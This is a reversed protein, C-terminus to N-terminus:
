PGIYGMELSPAPVSSYISSVALHDLFLSLSPGLNAVAAETSRPKRPEVSITLLSIGQEELAKRNRDIFEDDYPTSLSAGLTMLRSELRGLVTDWDARVYAGRFGPLYCNGEGDLHLYTRAIGHKYCSIGNVRGM